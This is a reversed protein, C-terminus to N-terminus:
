GCGSDQSGGDGQGSLVDTLSGLARAHSDFGLPAYWVREFRIRAEDQELVCREVRRRVDEGMDQCAQVMGATAAGLRDLCQRLTDVPLPMAPLEDAPAGARAAGVRDACDQLARQLAARAEFQEGASADLLSGALTMQQRLEHYHREHLHDIRELLFVLHDISLNLQERARANSPDVAPAVVDTLARITAALNVASQDM